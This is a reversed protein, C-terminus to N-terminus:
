PGILWLAVAIPLLTAIPIPLAPAALRGRLFLRYSALISAYLVASAVVIAILLAFPGLKGAEVAIVSLIASYALFDGSGLVVDRMRIALFQLVGGQGRLLESAIADLAKTRYMLYDYIALAALLAFITYRSMSNALVPGLLAISAGFCIRSSCRKLMAITAALTALVVVPMTVPALIGAKSYLSTYYISVLMSILLWLVNAVKDLRQSALYRLLLALLIGTAFLAVLTAITSSAVFDLLADSLSLRVGSKYYPLIWVFTSTAVVFVAAAIGKPTEV